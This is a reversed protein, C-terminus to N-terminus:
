TRANIAVIAVAYCAAIAVAIVFYRAVRIAAWLHKRFLISSLVLGTLWTVSVALYPLAGTGDDESSTLSPIAFFLCAIAFLGTWTYGLCLLILNVVVPRTYRSPPLEAM